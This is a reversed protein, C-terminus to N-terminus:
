RALGGVIWQTEKGVDFVSDTEPRNAKRMDDNSHRARVPRLDNRLIEHNQASAPELYELPRSLHRGYDKM